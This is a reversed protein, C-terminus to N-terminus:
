RQTRPRRVPPECPVPHALRGAALHELASTFGHREAVPLSSLVESVIGEVVADAQAVKDRGAATVSVIRARRDTASPRRQALGAQELEDMTVVMTTKDLGCQEALDGQTLECNLAHHLVCHARPSIGLGALGAALETNLAHTAQGLLLMLDIQPEPAASVM